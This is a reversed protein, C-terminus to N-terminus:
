ILRVRAAVRELIAAYSSRIQDANLRAIPSQEGASSLMVSSLLALALLLAILWRGTRVAAM